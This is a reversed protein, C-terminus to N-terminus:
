TDCFSFWNLSSNVEQLRVTKAKPSKCKQKHLKANKTPLPRYTFVHGTFQVADEANWFFEVSSSGSGKGM